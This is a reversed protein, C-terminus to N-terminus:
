TSCLQASPVFCACNAFSCNHFEPTQGLRITKLPSNGRQLCLCVASNRQTFHCYPAEPRLGRGVLDQAVNLSSVGLEQQLRLRLEVSGAEGGGRRGAEGGGRRGAEGSGAERRGAEGGGAGGRRGGGRRGAEGDTQIRARVTPSVSLHSRSCLTTCRVHERTIAHTRADTRGHTRADTRGHTRTNRSHTREDTRGHTWSDTRGRTRVNHTRIYRHAHAHLLYPPLTGFAGGM